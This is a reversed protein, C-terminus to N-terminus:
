RWPSRTKVIGYAWFGRRYESYPTNNRSELLFKSATLYKPWHLSASNVSVSKTRADITSSQHESTSQDFVASYSPNTDYLDSLTTANSKSTATGALLRRQPAPTDDVDALRRFIATTYRAPTDRTLRYDTSRSYSSYPPILPSGFLALSYAPESSTLKYYSSLCTCRHSCAYCASSKVSSASAEAHANTSPKARVAGTKLSPYRFRRSSRQLSRCGTPWPASTM